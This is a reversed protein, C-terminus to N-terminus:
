KKEQARREKATLGHKKEESVEVETALKTAPKNKLALLKAREKAAQPEPPLKDIKQQLTLKDYEAQRAEAEARRSAMIQKTHPYGRSSM